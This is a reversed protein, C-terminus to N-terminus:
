LYQVQDLTFYLLQDCQLNLFVQLFKLMQLPHIAHLVGHYPYVFGFLNSFCHKLVYRSSRRFAIMLM